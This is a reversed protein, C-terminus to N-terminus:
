LSVALVVAAIALGWAFKVKVAASKTYSPSNDLLLVENMHRWATTNMASDARCYWIDLDPDHAPAIKKVADPLYVAAGGARSCTEVHSLNFPGRFACGPGEYIATLNQFTHLEIAEYLIIM